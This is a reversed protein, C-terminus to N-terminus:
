PFIIKGLGYCVAGHLMRMCLLKAPRISKPVFLLNQLWISLGGFSCLAGLLAYPPYDWAQLVAHAGSGIELVAHVVSMLRKDVPGAIARAVGAAISFLMMAGCVGLVSSASQSIASPLSVGKSAETTEPQVPTEFLRWMASAVVASLWHLLLLTWAARSCGTWDALTGTFFMPSMVGTLALLSEPYRCTSQAARQTSAPSGSLFSFAANLWIRGGGPLMRSLVMMPFLAPLVSSGFTQLASRAACIAEQSFFAVLVAFLAVLISIMASGGPFSCVLKQQCDM